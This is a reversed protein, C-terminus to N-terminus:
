REERILDKLEENSEVYLLSAAASFEQEVMIVHRPWEDEDRCERVPSKNSFTSLPIKQLGIM